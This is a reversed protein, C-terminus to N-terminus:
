ATLILELAEDLGIEAVASADMALQVLDTARSLDIDAAIMQTLLLRARETPLGMEVIDSEHAALQALTYATIM